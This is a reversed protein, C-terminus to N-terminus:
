KPGLWRARFAKQADSPPTATSEAPVVDVHPDEALTISATKAAGGRDVYAVQVADGPKHRQLV